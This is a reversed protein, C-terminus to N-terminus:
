LVEIVFGVRLMEVQMEAIEIATLGDITAEIAEYNMKLEAMRAEIQMKQNELQEM